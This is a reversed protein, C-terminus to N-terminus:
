ILEVYSGVSLIRRAELPYDSSDVVGVIHKGAGIAFLTETIDPALSIIREAPQNLHVTLGADDVVECAYVLSSFFLYTCALFLYCCRM